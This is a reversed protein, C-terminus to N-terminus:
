HLTSTGFIITYSFEFNVRNKLPCFPNQVNGLPPPARLTSAPRESVSRLKIVKRLLFVTLGFM